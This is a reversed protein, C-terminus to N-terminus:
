KPYAVYKGAKRISIEGLASFRKEEMYRKIGDIVENMLPPHAFTASGIQVAAAGAILYELADFASAIGGIGVIPIKVKEYLEWVMCLAIPKIASGSLGASINEFVPKRKNIDIAM